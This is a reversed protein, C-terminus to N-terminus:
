VFESYLILSLLRLALASKNGRSDRLKYHSRM